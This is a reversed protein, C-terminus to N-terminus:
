KKVIDTSSDTKSITSSQRYESKFFNEGSLSVFHCVSLSVSPCFQNSLGKVCARLYHATDQHCVHVIVIYM